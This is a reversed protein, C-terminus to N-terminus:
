IFFRGPERAMQLLTTTRLWMFTHHCSIHNVYTGSLILNHNVYELYFLLIHIHFTVIDYRYPWMTFYCLTPTHKTYQCMTASHKTSHLTVTHNIYNLPATNEMYNLTATYKM